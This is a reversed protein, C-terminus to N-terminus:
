VGPFSIKGMRVPLLGSHKFIDPDGVVAENALIAFLIAEKADPELGISRTDSIPYASLEAGLKKMMYRNHVGGGSIFIQVGKQNKCIEKIAASVSKVTLMTITNVLDETSLSLNLKKMKDDLWGANFREPGTSKPFARKFFEDDLMENLLRESTKGRSALIGDEDMDVSLYNRVVQNILTNGPGTDSYLVSTKGAPIFSFNSIGGINILMNSHDKNRFLILDGYPALPAGEGGAAIHQQRFDSVVPIGTLTALHDADGLQLTAAGQNGNRPIHYVTQGHSGILDIQGPQYGHKAIFSSIQQAHHKAIRQHLMTFAYLSVQERSSIQILEQKFQDNYPVTEFAILEIATDFGSGSIKCLAIDVGDLSTGSMLGIILRSKKNTINNLLTAPHQM